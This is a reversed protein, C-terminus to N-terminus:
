SQCAGEDERNLKKIQIHLKNRSALRENSDLTYAIDIRGCGDKIRHDVREAFVGLLLDGYPTSYSCMHRRGRELVMESAYDGTRLMEMRGSTVKLRTVAGELPGDREVYSVAYGDELEELTGKAAMEVHDAQGDVLQEGRITIFVEHKM